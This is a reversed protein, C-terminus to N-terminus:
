RLVSSDPWFGSQATKVVSLSSLRSACATFSRTSFRMLTSPSFSQPLPSTVQIPM